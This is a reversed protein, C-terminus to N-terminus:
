KFGNRIEELYDEETRITLFMTMFHQYDVACSTSVMLAGEQLEKLTTEYIEASVYYVNWECFFGELAETKLLRGILEAEEEKEISDKQIMLYISGNLQEEKLIDTLDGQSDRDVAPVENRFKCNVQVTVQNWLESAQDMIVSEMWRNLDKLCGNDRCVGSEAEVAARIQSEADNEVYATAIYDNNENRSPLNVIYEKGYKEYLFTRLVERAEERSRIMLDEAAMEDEKENNMVENSVEGEIPSVQRGCGVVVLLM